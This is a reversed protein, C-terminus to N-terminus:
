NGPIEFILKELLVFPLSKFSVTWADVSGKESAKAGVTLDEEIM